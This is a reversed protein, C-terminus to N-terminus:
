RSMVSKLEERAMQTDVKCGECANVPCDGTGTGLLGLAEKIADELEANRELLQNAAVDGLKM